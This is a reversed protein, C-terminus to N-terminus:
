RWEKPKDHGKVAANVLELCADFLTLVVTSDNMHIWKKRYKEWAGEIDKDDIDGSLYKDYATLLELLDRMQQALLPNEKELKDAWDGLKYLDHQYDTLKGGSM